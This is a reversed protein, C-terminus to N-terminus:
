KKLNNKAVIGTDKVLNDGPLYFALWGTFTVPAPVTINEFICFFRIHGSCSLVNKNQNHRFLMGGGMGCIGTGNV